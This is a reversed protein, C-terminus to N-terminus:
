VGLYLILQTHLASYMQFHLLQCKFVLQEATTVFTFAWKHVASTVTNYRFEEQNKNPM